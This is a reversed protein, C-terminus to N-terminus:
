IDLSAELIDVLIDLTLDPSVESTEELESEVGEWLPLEGNVSPASAMGLTQGDLYKLFM